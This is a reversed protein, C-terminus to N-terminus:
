TGLGLLEHLLMSRKQPWCCIRIELLSIFASPWHLGIKNFSAYPGPLRLRQKQAVIKDSMNGAGQVEAQGAPCLPM